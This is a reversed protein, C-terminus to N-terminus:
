EVTTGGGVTKLIRINGIKELNQEICYDKLSKYVYDISDLSFGRKYFYDFLRNDGTKLYADKAYMLLNTGNNNKVNIDAGNAILFLALDYFGNYTAIILPTWGHNEKENLYHNLGQITKLTQIDGESCAKIVLDFKDFYLAIDYDITALMMLDDNQWLITGPKEISRNTTIKCFRIRREYVEPLQYERFNFARIQNFISLATQKLDINLNNYDIAKTSYYSSGLASQPIADCNFDNSIYKDICEKVLETGKNINRLYVDRSTDDINLPIIRQAIIAGTDIGRDIYHFTVGVNKENNLLPLVSTYMGKYAPLLSFHINFLKKSVFREPRIIRDFELSFFVLESIPYVEELKVENIGLKKATFRLSRQWTNVGTENKNYCVVINQKSINKKFLLYELVNVAIDNKGAICFTM